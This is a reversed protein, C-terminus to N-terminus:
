IGELIQKRRTQYEAEAVRGMRRDEELQRLDAQPDANPPPPPPPPPMQWAAMPASSHPPPVAMPTPKRRLLRALLAFLMCLVVGIGAALLARTVVTGFQLGPGFTLAPRGFSNGQTRGTVLYEGAEPVMLKDVSVGNVSNIQYTSGGAPVSPVPRRTRASRVTYSRLGDPYSVREEYYVTVDGQPLTVRGEGPLPVKGYKDNDFGAVLGLVFLALAVAFGGVISLVSLTIAARRV